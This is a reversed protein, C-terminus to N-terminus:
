ANGGCFNDGEGSQECFHYVGLNFLQVARLLESLSIAGNEPAYDSAHAPCDPDRQNPALRGALFGDESQALLACRYGTANYFQIVRLLESM